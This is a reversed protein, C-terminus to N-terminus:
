GIRRADAWPSPRLDPSSGPGPRRRSPACSIRSRAASRNAWCTPAPSLAVEKPFARGTSCRRRVRRDSSRSTSRSRRVTGLGACADEVVAARGRRHAGAQRRRAARGPRCGDAGGLARRGVHALPRRPLLWSGCCRPDQATTSSGHVVHGRRDDARAGRGHTARRCPRIPGAIARHGDAVPASGAIAPLSPRRRPPARRPPRVSRTPRERSGSGVPKREVLSPPADVLYLPREGRPAPASRRTGQWDCRLCTKRKLSASM